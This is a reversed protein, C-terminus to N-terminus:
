ATLPMPVGEPTILGVSCGAVTASSGSFHPQIAPFRIPGSLIMKARYRAFLSMQDLDPPRPIPCTAFLDSFVRAGSRQRENPLRPRVAVTNTEGEFVDFQSVDRSTNPQCTPVAALKGVCRLPIRSIIVEHKTWTTIPLSFDFFRRLGRSKLPLYWNNTCQVSRCIGAVLYPVCTLCVGERRPYRAQYFHCLFSFKVCLM